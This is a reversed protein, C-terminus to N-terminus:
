SSETSCKRDVSSIEANTLFADNKSVIHLDENFHGGFHRFVPLANSDPHEVRQAYFLKSGLIPNSGVVKRRAAPHEVGNIFQYKSSGLIPNSGVVM